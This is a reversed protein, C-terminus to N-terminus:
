LLVTPGSHSAGRNGAHVAGAVVTVILPHEEVRVRGDIAVSVGSIPVGRTPTRHDRGVVVVLHMAAVEHRSIGIDSLELAVAIM